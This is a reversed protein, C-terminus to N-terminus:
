SLVAIAASDEIFYLVEPFLKSFGLFAGQSFDKHFNVRFGYFASEKGCSWSNINEM